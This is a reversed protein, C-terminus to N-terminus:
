LTSYFKKIEKFQELAERAAKQIDKPKDNLAQTLAEASSRADGIVGLAKAATVQVFDDNDEKMAQILPKIGAKNKLQGLAWAAIRRCDGNEDKLTQIFPDLARQDKIEGLAKAVGYRLLQSESGLAQILFEVAPHGIERLTKVAGNRIHESKDKLLLILIPIISSGVKAIAKATADQTTSTDALGKLSVKALIEGGVLAPSLINVFEKRIEESEDLFFLEEIKNSFNM